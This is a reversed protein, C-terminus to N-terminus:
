AQRAQALHLIILLLHVRDAPLNAAILRSAAPLFQNDLLLVQRSLSRLTTFLLWNLTMEKPLQITGGALAGVTLLSSKKTHLSLM